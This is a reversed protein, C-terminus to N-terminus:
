MGQQGWHSPGTQQRREQETRNGQLAEGARRQSKGPLATPSDCGSGGDGMQANGTSFRLHLHAMGPVSKGGM